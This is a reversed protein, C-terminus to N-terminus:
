GFYTDTLTFTSRNYIKYQYFTMNNIEDNTAFGFAQAHIELGISEAGTETHINGKDNFVWWLTEDGYLTADCGQSGTVDYDPYDGANPDYTGDGDRDFFPALYYAQGESPSMPHAPWDYISQPVTYSPYDEPTEFAAVFEEVDARSMKFHKDWNSCEDASIDVDDLSLPGPWFDNGTQRYTMAAVKLQGGADIGGIWLSGAFLSHKPQETSGEPIKPIEYQGNSLDWWMDGGALITTRVNNVALDTQATAPACDASLARNEDTKGSSTQGINEKASLATVGLTLAATLVHSFKM